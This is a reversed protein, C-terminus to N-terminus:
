ITNSNFMYAKDPSDFKEWPFVVWTDNSVERLYLDPQYVSRPKKFLTAVICDPKLGVLQSLTKGSDCIDDVILIRSRIQTSFIPLFDLDLFHAVHVAIPLGGRPPGYVYKVSNIRPLNELREVFENMLEGFEQYSIYLKKIM